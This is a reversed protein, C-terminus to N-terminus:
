KYQITKLVSSRDSVEITFSGSLNKLNYLEGFEGAVKYGKEFVMENAADYIRVRIEDEKFARGTLAYKNGEGTLKVLRVFTKSRIVTYNVKESRTGFMDEILITYVGEQLGDFNYPRMFGNIKRLTESFVVQQDQDLISVKVKGFRNAKYFVKFLNSGNANLVVVSSSGVSPDDTGNAFVLTCFLVSVTLVIIKKM